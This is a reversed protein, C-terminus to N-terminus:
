RAYSRCVKVRAGPERDYRHLQPKSGACMDKHIREDLGQLPSWMSRTRAGSQCHWPRVEDEDSEEAIEDEDAVGDAAVTRQATLEIRVVEEVEEDDSLADDDEEEGLEFFALSPEEGDGSRARKRPSEGM